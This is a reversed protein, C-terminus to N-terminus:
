PTFRAFIRRSPKPILELGGGGLLGSENPFPFRDAIYMAIFFDIM